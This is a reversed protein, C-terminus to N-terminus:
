CVFDLPTTLHDLKNWFHGTVQHDGFQTGLAALRECYLGFHRQEDALIAVLGRRFAIPADPYALLAWAFLEIAQLEHNALAHLIRARQAPDRMGALPPVKASRASAIALNAPRGPATLVLPPERDELQLDPPPPALKDALVDSTVISQAFSRALM